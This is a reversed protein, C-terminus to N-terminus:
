ETMLVQFFGGDVQMERLAMQVGRRTRQIRQCQVVLWGALVLHTPRRELHGIDDASLSLSEDFSIAVPEAPLMDLHQPGDLPTTGGCEAAMEVFAGTAPM